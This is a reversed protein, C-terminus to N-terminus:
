RPDIETSLSTPLPVVKRIERGRSPIASGDRASDAVTSFRHRGVRGQNPNHKVPGPGLKGCLRQRLEKTAAGGVAPLSMCSLAEPLCAAGFKEPRYRTRFEKSMAAICHIM